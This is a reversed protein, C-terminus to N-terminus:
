RVVLVPCRARKVVGESVSGLHITELDTRGRSGVVIVDCDENDAYKVIETAVDNGLIVEAEAEVGKEEAENKLGETLEEAKKIEDKVAAPLEGSTIIDEYSRVVKLIVLQNNLQQAKEM